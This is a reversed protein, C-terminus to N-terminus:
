QSGEQGPFVHTLNWWPPLAEFSNAMAKIKDMPAGHACRAWAVAPDCHVWVISVEYGYVEALRYYPAIEFVRSNTNDVIIEECGAELRDLYQGLCWNHAKELNEPKFNYVPVGDIREIHFYDASVTVTVEAQSKRNEIWTSKGAGPIGRMIIVRRM